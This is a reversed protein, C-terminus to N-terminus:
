YFIEFWFIYSQYKSKGAINPSSGSPTNSTTTTREGTINLSLEKSSNGIINSAICKYTRVGYNTVITEKVGSQSDDLYSGNFMIWYTTPLTGKAKCTLTFPENVAVDKDATFSM